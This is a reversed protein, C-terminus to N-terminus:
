CRALWRMHAKGDLLSPTTHGRARRATTAKVAHCARRPTRAQLSLESYHRVTLEFVFVSNYLTSTVQKVVETRQVQGAVSVVVFPDSTGSMDLAALEMVENVNVRVVWNGPPAAALKARDVALEALPNVTPSASPPPASAGARAAMAAFM